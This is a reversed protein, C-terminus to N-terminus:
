LNVLICNHSVVIETGHAGGDRVGLFKRDRVSIDEIGYDLQASTLTQLNFTQTIRRIGSYTGDNFFM